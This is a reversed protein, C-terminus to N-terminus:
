RGFAQQFWACDLLDIDGDAESDYADAGPAAAVDPGTLRAFLDCADASDVEGNGDGDGIRVGIAELEVISTYERTGGAEGLLRVSWTPQSAFSLDIVQYFAYPDLPESLVLDAASCWAEGRCVQVDLDVFYGGWPTVVRPDSNIAGWRIDGEHYTLGDVRVPVSFDLQYYDGGAPQSNDGDYTDYPVHGNHRVDVIGDIIADLDDRDTSPDHEATSASTTVTRGQDLVLGVLGSPGAPDPLEPLPTVDDADPIHYVGESVTGGTAVIVQEAIVQWRAAIQTITDDEPLGPRDEVQYHDTAFETLETPLGSYGHILGLLGGATAPNCDADFGSLVAIRVTQEFDGQGYLLAMTTLALNVSSEVWGRFRGQSLTGRHYIYVLQRTARWDLTGDAADADYWDRVRQIIQWSRSSTPLTAQGLEVLTEVDSEFVAAAYMAGYFQAAHLAFGENTVGAFDAVSDIAWQRQGPSIAGLFETTIQSDIAYAHMNYRYCGTQPVVFGHNMLYRAQLNAIYIGSFWVHAEWEAQIEAPTPSIGYTELCHLYLYEFSTDDDGTWPDEDSTKVVWAFAEDPAADYGTYYGEFPRGTHNGILEGFWAGRLKDYFGDASITREARAAPTVLLHVAALALVLTRCWVLRRMVTCMTCMVCVPVCCPSALCAASM